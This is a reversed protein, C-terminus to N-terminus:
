LYKELQDSLACVINEIDCMEHGGVASIDGSTLGAEKNHGCVVGPDRSFLVDLELLRCITDQWRLLLPSPLNRWVEPAAFLRDLSTSSSSAAGDSSREFEEKFYGIPLAVALIISEKIKTLMLCFRDSLAVIKTQTLATQKHDDAGAANVDIDDNDDNVNSVRQDVASRDNTEMTRVVEMDSDSNARSSRTGPGPGSLGRGRSRGNGNGSGSVYRKDSPPHPVRENMVTPIMPNMFLSSSLGGTGTTPSCNLRDTAGQLHKNYANVISLLGHLNRTTAQVTVKQHIDDSAVMSKIPIHLIINSLGIDAHFSSPDIYILYIDLSTDVIPELTHDEYNEQKINIASCEISATPKRLHIDRLLNVSYHVRASIVNSDLVTRLVKDEFDEICEKEKDDLVSAPGCNDITDMFTTNDSRSLDDCRSLISLFSKSSLLVHLANQLYLHLLNLHKVASSLDSTRHILGTYATFNHARVCSCHINFETWELTFGDKGPFLSATTAILRSITLSHTDADDVSSLHSPHYSWSLAVGHSTCLIFSLAATMRFVNNISCM